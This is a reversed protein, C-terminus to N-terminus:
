PTPQHRTISGVHNEGPTFEATCVQGDFHFRIKLGVPNDEGCAFCMPAAEQVPTASM